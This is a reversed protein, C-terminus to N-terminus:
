GVCTKTIFRGQVLGVMEGEWVTKFRVQATPPADCVAEFELSITQRGAAATPLAGDARVSAILNWNADYVFAVADGNCVLYQGPKLAVAFRVTAGNVTFAPNALADPVAAGIGGNRAEAAGPKTPDLVAVPKEGAKGAVARLTFRLPQAAFPNTYDWSAGGRPAPTEGASPM